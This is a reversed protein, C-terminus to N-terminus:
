CLQRLLQWRVQVDLVEPDSGDEMLNQIRQSEQKAAQEFQLLASSFRCSCCAPRTHEAAAASSCPLCTHVGACCRWQWWCRLLLLLCSVIPLYEAPNEVLATALEPAGYVPHSLHGIDVRLRDKCRALQDRCAPLCAHLPASHATSRRRVNGANGRQAAASLQM